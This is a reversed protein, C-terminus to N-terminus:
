PQSASVCHRTEIVIEDDLKYLPREIMGNFYSTEFSLHNRLACWGIYTYISVRMCTRMYIPAPFVYMSVSPLVRNYTYKKKKKKKKSIAICVAPLCASIWSTLLNCRSLDLFLSSFLPLCALCTSLTTMSHKSTNSARSLGVKIM